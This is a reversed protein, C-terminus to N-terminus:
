YEGPSHAAVLRWEERLCFVWRQAQRVFVEPGRQFRATVQMEEAGPSHGEVAVVVVVVVQVVKVAQTLIGSCVVLQYALLGAASFAVPSQCCM